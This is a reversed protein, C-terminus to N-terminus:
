RAPVPVWSEPCTPVYPYYAHASRCYYWYGAPAPEVYVPPPTYVFGPSWSFLPGAGIFARGHFGRHHRLHGHFGHHRFHGHFGHQRHGHGRGHRRGDAEGLEAWGFLVTLGLALAAGYRKM